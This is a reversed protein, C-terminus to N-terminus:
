SVNQQQTSYKQYINILIGFILWFPLDTTIYGYTLYGTIELFSRFFLGIGIGTIVVSLIYFEDKNKKTIKM